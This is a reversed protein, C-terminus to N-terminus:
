REKKILVKALAGAIIASAASAGAAAKYKKGAVAQITRPNIIAAATAYAKWDRHAKYKAEKLHSYYSSQRLEEMYKNLEQMKQSAKPDNPNLDPHYKRAQAQYYKNIDRKSNINKKSTGM